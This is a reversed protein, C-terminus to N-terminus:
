RRRNRWRERQRPTGMMATLWPGFLANALFLGSISGIAGVIWVDTGTFLMAAPTGFAFVAVQWRPYTELGPLLNDATDVGKPPEGAPATM